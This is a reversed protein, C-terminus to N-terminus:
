NVHGIILDLPLRQNLLNMDLFSTTQYQIGSSCDADKMWKCGDDGGNMQDRLLDDCHYYCDYDSVNIENMRDHHHHDNNHPFRPPDEMFSSTTEAVNSHQGTLEQVLARFNSASTKVKMPSAIYRVKVADNKSRRNKHGLKGKM